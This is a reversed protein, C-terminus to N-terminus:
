EQRAYTGQTVNEATDLQMGVLGAQCRAQLSPMNCAMALKLAKNFASEAQEQRQAPTKNQDKLLLEGQILYAHAANPKEDRTEAHEIIKSVTQAAEELRNAGALAQAYANMLLSNVFSGGIYASGSELANEALAIAEEYQGSCTYFLVHRACVSPYVNAVRNEHCVKTALELAEQAKQLQGTEILCLAYEERVIARSYPDDFDDALACAEEFIHLAQEYKGIATLCAGLFTRCIVSPYGVWGARTNVKYTKIDLVVQQYLNIAEDFHGQSYLSMGVSHRAALSLPLSGNQQAIQVAKSAYQMASTHESFIWMSIALQSYINGLADQDGVMNAIKMADNLLERIRKHNGLPLIARLGLLRLEIGENVQEKGVPTVQALCSLAKELANAAHENASQIVSKAVVKKYYKVAKSWLEGAEAHHALQEAKEDIRNAYVEELAELISLHIQKRKRSYLNKFIVEAILAHRFQYSPTSSRHLEFLIDLAVLKDLDPVLDKETHLVRCLVLPDIEDNIVAAIRLIHKLETSLRDFRSTIISEIRTPVELKDTNKALKYKGPTGSLANSDVLSRITEEIYFPNCETQQVLQQVLMQSHEATGLLKEILRAADLESIKNLHFLKAKALGKWSKDFDPRLTFVLFVGTPLPQDIITELFALTEKDFWHLDEALLLLPKQKVLTTLLAKLGAFQANQRQVPNLRQWASKSVPLDLLSALASAHKDLQSHKGLFSTLKKAIKTYSDRPSIKLHNRLLRSFVGLPANGFAFGSVEFIHFRSKLREILEFAIRSKGVGPEGEVAITHTLGAQVSLAEQQLNKLLEDRGVLPSLGSAVLAQFRTLTTLGSLEYLPVERSEGKIATPGLSRVEVFGEVQAFTTDSMLAVGPDALTELRSALWTTTGIARFESGLTTNISSIVVKGSHMGIGVQLENALINKAKFREFQNFIHLATHCARLAHDEFAVPAGFIALIGDGQVQLVSGGYTHVAEIMLNIPTDIFKEVWEPDSGQILNLSNRLDVFMVTAHKHEGIASAFQAAGPPTPSQTNPQPNKDSAYLELLVGCGGCYRM